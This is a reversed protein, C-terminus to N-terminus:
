EPGTATAGESVRPSLRTEEASVGPSPSSASRRTDVEPCLLESHFKHYLLEHEVRALADDVDKQQQKMNTLEIFLDSCDPNCTGYRAWTVGDCDFQASVSPLLNPGVQIACSPTSGSCQSTNSNWGYFRHGPNPYATVTVTQPVEYLWVEAVGNALGNVQDNPPSVVVVGPGTAGVSLLYCGHGHIIPGPVQSGTDGTSRAARDASAAPAPCANGIAAAPDLQM